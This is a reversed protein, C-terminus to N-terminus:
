RSRLRDGALLADRLEPRAFGLDILEADERINSRLVRGHSRFYFDAQYPNAIEFPQWGYSAFLAVVDTITQGQVLLAQASLEILILCDERLVPLVDLMGQLVLWEAGEVDIKILRTSSIDAGPLIATLPLGEVTVESSTPRSIAEGAMITTGGLNQIDHLFIMVPGAKDTVALNHPVVQGVRNIELNHTLRRYISPSAEIAHVRGETGVLRAALLTHAGVNAGIDVCLDGPRLHRQFVRTIGPEWVGFFYLYSHIVDPLEGDLMAGFRTTARIPLSRRIVYPSLVHYWLFHKGFGFPMVRFYWSTAASVTRVLWDKM